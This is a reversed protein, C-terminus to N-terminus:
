GFAMECRAAAGRLAGPPRGQVAGHTCPGHWPRRALRAALGTAALALSLSCSGRRCGPAASSLEARHPGQRHVQHQTCGQQHHSRRLLAGRRQLLLLTLKPRRRHAEGGRQRAQVRGAAPRSPGGPACPRGATPTDQRRGRRCRGSGFVSRGAGQLRGAATGARPTSRSSPWHWRWAARRRTPARCAARRRRPPPPARM